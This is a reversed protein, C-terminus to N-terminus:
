TEDTQQQQKSERLPTHGVALGLTFAAAVGAAIIGPGVLRKNKKVAQKLTDLGGSITGVTTKSQARRKMLQEYLVSNSIFLPSLLTQQLNRTYAYRVDNEYADWKKLAVPDDVFHRRMTQLQVNLKELAQPMRQSVRNFQACRWEFEEKSM